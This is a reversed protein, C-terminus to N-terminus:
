GGQGSGQQQPAGVEVLKLDFQVAENPGVPPQGRLGFAMEPPVFIQWTAGEKMLPLVEQWGKLVQDVQFTEPKGRAFSSDFEVDDMTIGRYHVTVTDDLAPKEGSGSEIVRYQVGSPLAVIGDKARNEQLFKESKNKNKDALERYAALRKQKIEKNLQELITAMEERPVQPDAENHVDRIAEIVRDINLDLGQQSQQRLNMGLDFGVAYSLKSKSVQPPASASASQQQQAMVPAGAMLAAIAAAIGSHAFRNTM